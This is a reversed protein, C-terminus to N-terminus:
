DDREREQDIPRHVPGSERTTKHLNKAGLCVELEVRLDV